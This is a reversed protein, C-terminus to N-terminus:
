FGILCHHHDGMGQRDDFVGILNQHQIMAPDCLRSGMVLKYIAASFVGGPQQLAIM